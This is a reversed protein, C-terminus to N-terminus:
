SAMINPNSSMVSEKNQNSASGLGGLITDSQDSEMFNIKSSVESSMKSEETIINQTEVQVTLDMDSLDMDM